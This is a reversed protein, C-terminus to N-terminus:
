GEQVLGADIAHMLRTPTGHQSAHVDVAFPVLGLGPRM